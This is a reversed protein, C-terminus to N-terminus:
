TPPVLVNFLVHYELVHTSMDCCPYFVHLSPYAHSAKKREKDLKNWNENKQAALTKFLFSTNKEYNLFKIVIEQFNNKLKRWNKENKKLKKYPRLWKVIWIRFILLFFLIRGFVFLNCWAHATSKYSDRWANPHFFVICRSMALCFCMGVCSLWLCTCTHYLGEM